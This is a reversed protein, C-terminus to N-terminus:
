SSAVYCRWMAVGYPSAAISCVALAADDCSMQM